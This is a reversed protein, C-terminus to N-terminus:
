HSDGDHDVDGSAAPKTDSALAKQAQPSITVNDKPAASQTAAQQAKPPAATPQTQTVASVAQVPQIPNSM